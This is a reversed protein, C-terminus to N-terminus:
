EEWIFSVNGSHEKKEPEYAGKLKYAMDLGKSIAFADVAEITEEVIADGMKRTKTKIKIPVTLLEKHKEALLSDPLFEEMLEKWGKSKTLKSPDKATQASYGVKRM